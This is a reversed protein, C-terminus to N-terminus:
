SINVSFRIAAPANTVQVDGSWDFKLVDSRGDESPYQGPKMWNNRLRFTKMFSPDRRTPKPHRAFVIISDDLLFEVDPDLGEAATDEVMLSIRGEPGGLLMDSIDSIQVAKYDTKGGPRRDVVSKHNKVVRLANAGYVIGVKMLAGYRSVKLVSLIAKDLQDVIDAGAGINLATPANLVSLAAQIVEKEHALAGLEAIQDAAEQVVNELDESELQELKDVPFDLANPACNYTSDKADFGVVTARGGLARRTNPVRFRQKEDYKKFRGISTGVDVTPALFDALPSMASQAAGQAYERVTPKATVAELKSM